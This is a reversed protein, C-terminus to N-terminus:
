LLAEFMVVAVIVLIYIWLNIDKYVKDIKIQKKIEDIDRLECDTEKKIQEIYIDSQTKYKSDGGYQSVYVFEKIADEVNGIRYFCFGKWFSNIVAISM